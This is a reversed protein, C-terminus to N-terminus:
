GVSEVELSFSFKSRRHSAKGPFHRAPLPSGERAPDLRDGISFRPSGSWQVTVLNGIRSLEFNQLATTM